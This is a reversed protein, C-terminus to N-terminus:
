STCNPPSGYLRPRMYADINRHNKASVVCYSTYDPHEFRLVWALTVNVNDTGTPLDVAWSGRADTVLAPDPCGSPPGAYVCVGQVPGGYQDIARGYYRTFGERFPGDAHKIGGVYGTTGVTLTQFYGIDPLLVGGRTQLRGYFSFSPVVAYPVTVGYLFHGVEGPSVRGQQQVAMISSSPWSSAWGQEAAQTNRLPFNTVLRVESDTDRVWPVTGTNVFAVSFTGEGRVPLTLFSSQSFFTAHLGDAANAPVSNAVLILISLALSKM